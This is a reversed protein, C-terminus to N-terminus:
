FHENPQEVAKQEYWGPHSCMKRCPAGHRWDQHHSSRNALSPMSPHCISDILNKTSINLVALAVAIIAGEFELLACHRYFLTCLLLM